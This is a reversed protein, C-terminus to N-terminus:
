RVHGPDDDSVFQLAILGGLALYHRSHSVALVAIQVIPCLIRMLRRALMLPAHLPEFRRTMRLPKQRRITGKSLVESWATMAQRGVLVTLGHPFSALHPTLDRARLPNGLPLM